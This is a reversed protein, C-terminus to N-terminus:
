LNQYGAVIPFISLCAFIYLHVLIINRAVKNKNYGRKYKATKRKVIISIKRM